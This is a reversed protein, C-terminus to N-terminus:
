AAKQLRVLREELDGLSLTIDEYLANAAIGLSTSPGRVGFKASV